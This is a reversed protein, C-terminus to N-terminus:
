HTSAALNPEDGLLPLMLHSLCNTVHAAQEGEPKLLASMLVGDLAAVLAEARETGHDRGADAMIRDVQVVLDRRWDGFLDALAANRSAEMTLELKAVLLSPTALWGLFLSRTAEVAFAVGETNASLQESLGCVDDALRAAVFGALANQLALRTRLYSSCSGEPLGARRDVARHTLGRMGHEAVVDIAAELLQRRRPSLETGPM